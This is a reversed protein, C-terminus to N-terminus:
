KKKRKETATMKTAVSVIIETRPSLYPNENGAANKRKKKKECKKKKCFKKRARNRRSQGQGHSAIKIIKPYSTKM